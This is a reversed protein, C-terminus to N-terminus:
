TLWRVWFDKIASSDFMIDLNEAIEEELQEKEEPTLYISKNFKIWAVISDEHWESDWKYEYKSPRGGPWSVGLLSNLLSDDYVAAENSDAPPLERRFLVSLRIGKYATKDEDETVKGQKQSEMREPRDPESTLKKLDEFLKQIRSRPDNRFERKTKM